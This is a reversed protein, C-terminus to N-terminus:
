DGLAQQRGKNDRAPLLSQAVVGELSESVMTRVQAQQNAPFIDIIRDITKSASNTHLTALVLHGTEAATIALSTTELDRLEGVLIVDPDERLSQRLARAFSGSHLPIERQNVLSDKNVSDRICM